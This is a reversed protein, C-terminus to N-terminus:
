FLSHTPKADFWVDAQTIVAGLRTSTFSAVLGILYVGAMLALSKLIAPAIAAYAEPGPIGGKAMAVGQEIYSAITQIYVAPAVGVLAVVIICALVVFVEKKYYTFLLSILRALTGKANKARRGDGRMRPAAM